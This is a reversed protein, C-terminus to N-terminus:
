YTASIIFYVIIPFESSSYFNASIM